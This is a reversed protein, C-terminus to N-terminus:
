KAQPTTVIQSNPGYNGQTVYEDQGNIRWTSEPTCTYSSVYLRYAPIQRAAITGSVKDLSANISLKIPKANSYQKYKYQINSVYYHKQCNITQGDKIGPPKINNHPIPKNNDRVLGTPRVHYDQNGTPPPPPTTADSEPDAALGLHAGLNSTPAHSASVSPIGIAQTADSALAFHCLGSCLLATTIKSLHHTKM